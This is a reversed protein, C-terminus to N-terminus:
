TRRVRRELESAYQRGLTDANAAMWDTLRTTGAPPAEVALKGAMLGEIEEWTLFVDGVMWGILRASLYGLRPPISLIPRNKGIARGVAEVLARYTFTEPGIAEITRNGRLAGQEVALAALDDAHIPQIGYAGDGFIGFCPFRRLAWAINNILIDEPGFLVAPRLIAYSIGSEVVMQELTAKGRFYELQSDPDPNTISIHVIREVQAQRAAEFMARSNGIAEAHTFREHNFRVWYTNYFVTVGEFAQRLKGPDDFHYRHVEVRNGFPDPKGSHHTLTRVAHGADLLRRTIYRGTFGFAGTVLHTKQPNSM